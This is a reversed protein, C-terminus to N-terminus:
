GFCVGMQKGHVILDHNENVLKLRGAVEEL